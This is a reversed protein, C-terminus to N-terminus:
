PADATLRRGISYWTGGQSIQKNPYTRTPQSAKPVAAQNAVSTAAAEVRTAAAEVHTAVAEARARTEGVQGNVEANNALTGGRYPFRGPLADAPYQGYGWPQANGADRYPAQYNFLGQPHQPANYYFPPANMGLGVARYQSGNVPGPYGGHFPQPQPPYYPPQYMEPPPAPPPTRRSPLPGLGRGRGNSAPHQPYAPPFSM